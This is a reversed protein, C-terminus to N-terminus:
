ASVGENPQPPQIVDGVSQDGPGDKGQWQAIVQAHRFVRYAFPDANLPVLDYGDARVWVAACADVPIMPREKGYADLYFEANRYAAVQITAEPYIGSRTTKIDVLRRLGDNFDAILDGTGMWRHTRNGCVFEVLVPQVNFAELFKLYSDVHGVLEEPVEVEEGNIMASAYGHVEGGRRAGRDRDRWPVGKLLDVAEDRKLDSVIDLNDYAFGAVERAAWYPIAPKPVGNGIVTTVGDVKEGDLRYWHGGNRGDVRRTVGTM